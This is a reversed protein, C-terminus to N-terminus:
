KKAYLMTLVVTGIIEHQNSNYITEQTGQSLPLLRWQPADIILERMTIGGSEKLRILVIDGDATSAKQDIIFLTGRPFRPQMSHRSELAFLKESLSYEKGVFLPQWTKWETLNIDSISKMDQATQWDLVPVFKPSNQTALTPTGQGHNILSDVTVGFYDAILRLTSIRPDTTDGTILRRITLFPLGLKAALASVSTNHVEILKTLNESLVKVQERDMKIAHNGM